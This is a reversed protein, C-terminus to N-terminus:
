GTNARNRQRGVIIRRQRDPEGRRLIALRDDQIKGSIGAGQCLITWQELLEDPAAEADSGTRWRVTRLRPHRDFSVAIHITKLSIM